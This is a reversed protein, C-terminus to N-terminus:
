RLFFVSWYWIFVALLHTCRCLTCHFSCYRLSFVVAHSRASWMLMCIAYFAAHGNNWSPSLSLLSFCVFEISFWRVLLWKKGLAFFFTKWQSHTRALSRPRTRYAATSLLPSIRHQPESCKQNKNEPARNRACAHRLSCLSSCLWETRDVIDHRFCPM